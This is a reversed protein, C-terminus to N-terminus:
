FAAERAPGSLSPEPTAPVDTSARQTLRGPLIVTRPPQGPSATLLLEAAWEAVRNPDVEYATIAHDALLREGPECMAALSLQAPIELGAAAAARRADTATETDACILATPQADRALMAALDFGAGAKQEAMAEIGFRRMAARYGSAAARAASATSSGNLWQIRRHGLQILHQCLEFAGQVDDPIVLPTKIRDHAHNILVLPLHQRHVHGLLEISPLASHVVLGDFGRLRTGSLLHAPVESAADVPLDVREIRHGKEAVLRHAHDLIAERYAHRGAAPIVWGFTLPRSVAPGAHGDQGAVFTGRGVHRVLLGETTLDSLAKNVTKANADYRRALEREGPLKGGLEGSV